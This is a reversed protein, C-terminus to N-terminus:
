KSAPYKKIYTDAPLGGAVARQRLTEAGESSLGSGIIVLYHTDIPSPPFVSPKFQPHRKALTSAMKAADDERSYSAVVVFWGRGSAKGATPTASPQPSVKPPAEFPTPKTRLTPKPQVTAERQPTMGPQVAPAPRVGANPVPPAPANVVPAPPASAALSSDSSSGTGRALVYIVALLMVVAAAPYLWAPIPRRPREAVPEIATVVPSIKGPAVTQHEPSAQAASPGAAAAPAVPIPAPMKGALCLSAQKASWQLTPDPQLAHEVIDRLPKPVNAIASPQREQTLVEIITLGLARMDAEPSAVAGVPRVTDASFKVSDGVALINSPKISGHALGQEHLYTLTNLLPALMERTEDPTLARSAIINGLSEDALETVFYRYRSGSIESTGREIIEILNRHEVPPVEPAAEDAMRLKLAANMEGYSTLYVASEETSGILRRLLYGGCVKSGSLEEWFESTM